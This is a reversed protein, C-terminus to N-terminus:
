KREKKSYRRRSYHFLHHEKPGYVFIPDQIKAVEKGTEYSVKAVVYLILGGSLALLAKKLMNEGELYLLSSGTHGERKTM